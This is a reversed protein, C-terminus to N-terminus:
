VSLVAYMAAVGIILVMSVLFGVHGLGRLITKKAYPNRGLSIISSSVAAYIIGGEVVVLVVLITIALFAQATSVDHGVLSSGISQLWNKESKGSNSAVKVDMNLRVKAVHAEKTSGDAQKVQITQTGSSPFDELAVGLVGSTGTSARALIGELVSAALLDGKKPKGGLDSVYVSAVGTTAVYVQADSSAVALSSTQPDIVVGITKTALEASSRVVYNSDSTPGDVVAVAMGTSIGTQSTKYGQVADLAAVPGAVVTVFSVVALLSAVLVRPFTLQLHINKTHM